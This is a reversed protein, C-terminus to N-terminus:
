AAKSRSKYSVQMSCAYAFYLLHRSGGRVSRRKVIDLNRIAEVLRRRFLEAPPLYPPMPTRLSFGASLTYFKLDAYPWFIMHPSVWLAGVYLIVSGVMDRREENVLAVFDSRM